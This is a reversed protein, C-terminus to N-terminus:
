KGTTVTDAATTDAHLWMHLRSRLMTDASYLSTGRYHQAGTSDAVIYYPTRPVAIRRLAQASVGGPVWGQLWTSSDGEVQSRWRTSDGTLSVEILQLPRRPFDSRLTRLRRRISDPKVGDTFVMLAYSNQSPIYRVITDVGNRLTFSRIEGRTSTAVQEGVASAYSGSLLAPRAEYTIEGLLSDALLEHGATRFRTVMLLTSAMSSPNSRVADAILANVEEDSGHRLLSDHGAVFAAYDRSANQGTIVLTAPDGLTMKLKMRDGDEAVCSFLLEGDLSFVEVLTPQASAGTLNVKGDVPHFTQRSVGGRTMYVMELGRMDLGEIECSIVFGERSDCSQVTVLLAVLLTIIAFLKKM